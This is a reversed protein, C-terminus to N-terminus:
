FLWAGLIFSIFCLLMLAQFNVGSASVKHSKSSMGNTTSTPPVTADARRQRLVNLRELEQKYGDCASQLSVIKEKSDRLEKIAKELPNNSVPTSVATVAVSDPLQSANDEIVPVGVASSEINKSKVLDVNAPPATSDELTYTCKIKKELLGDASSSSSDGSKKSEEALAWLEGVQTQYANEDLAAMAAPLKVSQVLFKDKRKTDISGDRLQLIITIEVKEGAGLKGSNPRVVFLKPATTKVKFAFAVGEPHNNSITLIQRPNQHIGTASKQFVLESDPTLDM